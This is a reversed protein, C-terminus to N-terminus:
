TMHTHMWGILGKPHGVGRGLGSGSFVLKCFVFCFFCAGPGLFLFGSSVVSVQQERQEWNKSVCLVRVFGMDGVILGSLKPM